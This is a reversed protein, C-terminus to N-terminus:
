PKWMRSNTSHTHQLKLQDRVIENNCNICLYSFLNKLEYQTVLIMRPEKMCRTCTRDQVLSNTRSLVFSNQKTVQVPNTEVKTPTTSPSSKTFTSSRNEVTFVTVRDSSDYESFSQVKTDSHKKPSAISQYKVLEYKNDNNVTGQEIYIRRYIFYTLLYLSCFLIFLVASCMQISQFIRKMTMNTLFYDPWTINLPWGTITTKYTSNVQYTVQAINCNLVFCRTPDVLVFIDYVILALCLVIMVLCLTKAIRLFLLQPKWATILVFISCSLLPLFIIFGGFATSRYADCITHGIEMALISLSLFSLMVGLVIIWIYPWNLHLGYQNFTLNKTSKDPAFSM